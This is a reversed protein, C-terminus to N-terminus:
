SGVTNPLRSASAHGLTTQQIGLLSPANSVNNPKLACIGRSSRAVINRNEAFGERMMQSNTMLVGVHGYWWDRICGGRRWPYRLLIADRNGNIWSMRGMIKGADTVTVFAASIRGELDSSALPVSVPADPTHTMLLFATTSLVSLIHVELSDLRAQAIGRKQFTCTCVTRATRMTLGLEDEDTRWWPSCPVYRLKESLTM